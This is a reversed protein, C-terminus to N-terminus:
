RVKNFPLSREICMGIFVFVALSFNYRFLNSQFTRQTNKFIHIRANRRRREYSGLLLLSLCIEMQSDAM